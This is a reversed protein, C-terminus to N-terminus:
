FNELWEEIIEAEATEQTANYTQLTIGPVVEVDVNVEKIVNGETVAGFLNIKATFTLTHIVFRRTELDGEYDDQVTVSNLIFPVDQIVNMSPIVNVSVTYDPVFTPLIQELIQLGDEVTKTVFYLSLDLNYPTPVFVASKGNETTCTIKNMRNLKRSPDYTYGTIEFGIRPLTTYIGREGDPNQEFSQFWKEKQSYAVPVQIIQETTGTVSGNSKREFRINSFMRGFAVIINRITGHYFPTDNLM